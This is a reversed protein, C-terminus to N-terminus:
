RQVDLLVQGYVNDVRLTMRYRRDGTPLLVFSPAPGAGPVFGILTYTRSSLGPHIRIKIAAGDARLGGSRSVSLSNQAYGLDFVLGSLKDM